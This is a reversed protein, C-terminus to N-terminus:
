PSFPLYYQTFVPGPRSIRFSPICFPIWVDENTAFSALERDHNKSFEESNLQGIYERASLEEPVVAHNPRAVMALVGLMSDVVDQDSIDKLHLSPIGLATITRGIHDGWVDYQSDAEDTYALIQPHTAVAHYSEIFAEWGIKWNCPIVKGVHLMKYANEPKWREFHEPLIGLCDHLSQAELDMNIFVWGCWTDVQVEPLSFNKKDIHPFDWECPAGKFEAELDWTFAHYPCRFKKYNGKDDVLQRGRHLCANRYAKLELNETRTVIVSFRTIDYVLTDGAEGIETERCVAQSIRQWVHEVEM